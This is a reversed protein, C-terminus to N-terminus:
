RASYNVVRAEGPGHSVLDLVLTPIRCDLLELHSHTVRVPSLLPKGVEGMVISGVIARAKETQM